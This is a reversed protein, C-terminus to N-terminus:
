ENMLNSMLLDITEHTVTLFMGIVMANMRVVALIGWMLFFSESGVRGRMLILMGRWTDGLLVLRGHTRDDIVLLAM